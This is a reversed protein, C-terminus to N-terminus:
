IARLPSVFNRLTAHKAGADLQRWAEHYDGIPAGGLDVNLSRSTNTTYDKLEMKCDETLYVAISDGDGDGWFCVALDDRLGKKIEAVRSRAAAFSPLGLKHYLRAGRGSPQVAFLFWQTAASREVADAVEELHDLNRANLVTVVRVNSGADAAHEIAQLALHPGGAAGRLAAYEDARVSDLSIQFQMVFPALRRAMAKDLLFGNTALAPALGRSSAHELIEAIDDRLLPEGGGAILRLAGWESLRDLARKITPLDAGVPARSHSNTCCFICASQCRKTVTWSVSIPARLSFGEPGPFDGFCFDGRYCFPDRDGTRRQIQDPDRRVQDFSPKDFAWVRDRERDLALGGWDEARFTFRAGARV